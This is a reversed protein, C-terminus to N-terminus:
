LARSHQSRSMFSPQTPEPEGLEAVPQLCFVPEAFICRLKVGGQLEGTSDGFQEVDIEMRKAMAVYLNCLSTDTEARLRCGLRLKCCLLFADESVSSAKM